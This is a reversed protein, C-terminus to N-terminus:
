WRAMAPFLLRPGELGEHGPAMVGIRQMATKSNLVRLVLEHM